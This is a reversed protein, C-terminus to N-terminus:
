SIARYYAGLLGITDGLKTKVIEPISNIAYEEIEINSPILLNYQHLGLSGMIVIGEVELANIMMALGQANANNAINIITRAAEEKKYAKCVEEITEYKPYIKKILSEIGKGSAYASWCNTRGCSCRQDPYELPNIPSHGFEGGKVSKGNLVIGAGIGTSLTLLYFNNWQKGYGEHLEALVAANLDNEVIIETSKGTVLSALEKKLDLSNKLGLPPASLLMGDRVPGPTAVVIYDLHNREETSLTLQGSIKKIQGIFDEETPEKIISGFKGENSINAARIWTGGLDFVQM